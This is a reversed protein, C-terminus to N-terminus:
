VSVKVLWALRDEREREIKVDLFSEIVAANSDFHPTVATTRFVGGNGLAMPLLLQDALYDGVPADSKLYREVQKTLEKAVQESPVGVRGHSIFSESVNEYELTAVCVNGPGFSDEINEIRAESDAWGLVGKIMTRERSAISGSLKAFYVVAERSVLEGRERLEFSDGADTKRIRFRALGGGAPYFGYRELAGEVEWGCKTAMPCFVDRLFQFHPAMPNHTGGSLSVSSEGEQMALAPLITQLVLMTSGATGVSYEFDGMAVKEPEFELTSSKLEAGIVTAGSIEAAANVATLHQRLLGPKSRKGRINEIRFAKGTVLSLALSSRLIQGGGEGYTGDITIM